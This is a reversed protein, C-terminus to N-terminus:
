NLVSTYNPNALEPCERNTESAVTANLERETLPAGTAIEICRFANVTGRNILREIAAPRAAAIGGFDRVEGRSNVNFRDTLQQLERRGKEVQDQLENNINQITSIDARMQEIVRSQQAIGNQLQKANEEAIALNAKLNTIHWMGGAVVLVVVLIVFAKFTSGFM